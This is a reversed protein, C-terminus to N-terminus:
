KRLEELEAVSLSNFEQDQKAAIATDIKNNHAKTNAIKTARESNELKTSLVDIVIDFSLKTMKDKISKAVLFSKKGSSNYEEELSVAMSDLEQISLDFLQETSVRGKSSTFRLKAKAAKKYM